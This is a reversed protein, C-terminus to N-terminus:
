AAALSDGLEVLKAVSLPPHDGVGRSCLVTIGTVRDTWHLCRDGAELVGSVIEAREGRVMRHGEVPHDASWQPLHEQLTLTAHPGSWSAGLWFPPPRSPDAVQPWDASYRDPTFGAPLLPPLLVHRIPHMEGTAADRVATVDSFGVPWPFSVVAPPLGIAPCARDPRPVVPRYEYAALTVPENAEKGLALRYFADDCAGRVAPGTTVAIVDGRLAVDFWPIQQVRRYDAGDVELTEPAADLGDTLEGPERPPDEFPATGAPAGVTFDPAAGSSDLVGGSSDPVGGTADPATGSTAQGCGALLVLAVGAAIGALGRATARRRQVRTM